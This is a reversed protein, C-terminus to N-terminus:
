AAKSLDRSRKLAELTRNKDLVRKRKSGTAPNPDQDQTLPQDTPTKETHTLDDTLFVLTRGTGSREDASDSGGKAQQHKRKISPPSM